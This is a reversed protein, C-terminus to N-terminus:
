EKDKEVEQFQTSSNSKQMTLIHECYRYNNKNHSVLIVTAQNTRAHAFILELVTKELNADVSETPEDLIIVKAQSLLVRAIGIRRIEGGSLARGGNGLIQMLDKSLYDLGVQKLTQQAQELTLSSNAIKLNDFISDNFIHVRQSLHVCLERQQGGRAELTNLLNGQEDFLNFIIEGQYSTELGLLCNLFTTKGLGSDGSILYSSQGQFEFNLDKIIQNNQYSFNLDKVQINISKVKEGIEKALPQPYFNNTEVKYKAKKGLDEDILNQALQAAQRNQLLPNLNQASSIVQGLHVFLNALPVIFEISGIILFIFILALGPLRLDSAHLVQLYSTGFITVTLLVGLLIQLIFTSLNVYKDQQLQEKILNNNLQNLYTIKKEQKNFIVSEFQFELYNLFALRLKTSEKEVNSAIKKGLPYFIWPVILTTVILCSGVFIALKFDIFTLGITFALFLLITGFFPILVNVYFGDLNDIDKIIRDFLENDSLQLNKKFAHIKNVDTFLPLMSAFVQVRLKTLVDFTAKHTVLRQIYKLATRAIAFGRVSSSPYFINFDISAVLYCSALFWASLTLLGLSSGLSLITLILGLLMIFTKGAFLNILLKLM